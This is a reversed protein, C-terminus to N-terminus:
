RGYLSSYCAANRLPPTFGLAELSAGNSGLWRQSEGRRTGAFGPGGVAEVGHRFVAARTRDGSTLDGEVFRGAEGIWQPELAAFPHLFLLWDGRAALAGAISQAGEGLASRVM